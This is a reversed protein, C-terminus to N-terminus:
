PLKITLIQRKGMLNFNKMSYISVQLQLYQYLGFPIPTVTAIAIIKMEEEMALLGFLFRDRAM